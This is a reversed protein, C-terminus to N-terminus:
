FPREMDEPRPREDRVIRYSDLNHQSGRRMPDRGLLRRILGLPTILAFFVVGLVLRSNIWGAVDGFAMWGRHVPRLAAPALLGFLWLIAAVIWPWAPWPRQLLWPLLLGFLAAIVAGMILGFQRLERSTLMQQLAPTSM